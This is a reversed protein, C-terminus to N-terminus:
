VVQTWLENGFRFRATPAEASAKLELITRPSLVWAWVDRLAHFGLRFRDLMPEVDVTPSPPLEGRFKGFVPPPQSGRIRQWFEARAEVDAFLGGVVQALATSVDPPEEKVVHTRSGLATECIRFGGVAAASAIWLDIGSDVDKDAWYAQGLLHQLLRSSCGFEGGAPQRLRVGYLARFVPAIVSKTIAGEHPHREYYPAVYDFENSIVPELLQPIWESSVSTLRADIVACGAAGRLAATRLVSLIAPGRGSWGHYPAALPDPALRPYEVTILPCGVAVAEEARKVTRDTSGGDALVLCGDSAHEALGVSVRRVVEGVTDADNYSIIGVVVPRGGTPRPSSSAEPGRASNLGISAM